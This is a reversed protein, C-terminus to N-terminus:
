FQAAKHRACRPANPAIDGVFFQAAMPPLPPEPTPISPVVRFNLRKPEENEGDATGERSSCEAAGAGRMDGSDDCGDSTGVESEGMRASRKAGTM